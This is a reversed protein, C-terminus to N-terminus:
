FRRRRTRGDIQRRRGRLLRRGAGTLVICGVNNDHAWDTRAPKKLLGLTRIDMSVLANLREPRNLTLTAIGNEVTEILDPM